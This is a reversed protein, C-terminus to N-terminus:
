TIATILMFIRGDSSALMTNLHSYCLKRELALIIHTFPIWYIRNATHNVPSLNVYYNIWQLLKSFADACDVSNNIAKFLLYEFSVHCGTVQNHLRSRKEILERFALPLDIINRSSIALKRYIWNHLQKVRYEPEGESLILNHQADSLDNLNMTIM